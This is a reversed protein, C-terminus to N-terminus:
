VANLRTLLDTKAAEATEGKGVLGRYSDWFNLCDADSDDVADPARNVWATYLANSYCGTYRDKIVIVTLTVSDMLVVDTMDAKGTAADM